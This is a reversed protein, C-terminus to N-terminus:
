FWRTWKMGDPCGAQKLFTDFPVADRLDAVNAKAWASMLRNQDSTWAAQYEARIAAQWALGDYDSASKKTFSAFQARTTGQVRAFSYVKAVTGSILALTEEEPTPSRFLWDTGKEADKVGAIGVTVGDRFLYLRENERENESVFGTVPFQNGSQCQVRLAVREACVRVNSAGADACATVIWKAMRDNDANLLVVKVQGYLKSTYLCSQTPFGEWGPIKVPACGEAMYRGWTVKDLKERVFTADTEQAAASALSAVATAALRHKIMTALM